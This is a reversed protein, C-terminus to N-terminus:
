RRGSHSAALVRPAALLRNILSVLLDPDSVYSIYSFPGIHVNKSVGDASAKIIVIPVAQQQILDLESRVPALLQLPLAEPINGVNILILKPLVEKAIAIAEKLKDLEVVQYDQLQLMKKITTGLPESATPENLMLVLNTIM